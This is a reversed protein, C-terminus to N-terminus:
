LTRVMLAYGNMNWRICYIRPSRWPAESLNAILKELLNIAKFKNGKLIEDEYVVWLALPHNPKFSLVKRFLDLTEKEIIGDQKNQFLKAEALGEIAEIDKNNLEIARRYARIAKEFRGLVLNSRGLRKWDSIENSDYKNNM